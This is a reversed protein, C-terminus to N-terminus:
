HSLSRGVTKLAIREVPFGDAVAGHNTVFVSTEKVNAMGPTGDPVGFAARLEGFVNAKIRGRTLEQGPAPDVLLQMLDPLPAGPATNIFGFQLEASGLAPTAGALVDPARTGMLLTGTFDFDAAVFTLANDVHLVVLVDARGDALARETVSGAFTTGMSRTGMSNSEIWANAIGAYDIAAAYGNEPDFWGLFNNLPPVFLVCGGTGDDLCYTGQAAVFEDISRQVAPASSQSGISEPLPTLSNESSCGVFFCLGALLAFPYLPRHMM